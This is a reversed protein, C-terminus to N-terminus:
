HKMSQPPPGPPSRVIWTTRSGKDGTGPPQLRLPDRGRMRLILATPVIGGVFILGMVIPNVVAHLILGFRFWLRNLPHLLRPRALAVAAFAVALALAWPRAGNHHFLPWLGILAFLAAFVFGFNRDSGLKVKEREFREHTGTM